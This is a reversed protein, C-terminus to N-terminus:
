KELPLLLALQFRVQWKPYPLTDPHIASYYTAAQGNFPAGRIRFVRGLGAGFPVLWKEGPDVNWHSTVNPSSLFYWGKEFNYYIFYQLLFSNTQPRDKDGEFSWLNNTLAGITWKGPQVLAVASPGAAWKGIGLASNTATPMSVAPGVGWIIKRPKSPTLFLTPNLDGLGNKYGDPRNVYPQSILPLIVRVILNWNQSVALPVVPELNLVNQTRNFPGISFNTDNELPISILNAVPNQVQKQLREIEDDIHQAQAGALAPITVLVVLALAWKFSARVAHSTMQRPYFNAVVLNYGSL